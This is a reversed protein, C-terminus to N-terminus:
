CFVEGISKLEWRCNDYLLISFEEATFQRGYEDEVIKEGPRHRSKHKICELVLAPDTAFIFATEADGCGYRKGVHTGAYPVETEHCKVKTGTPLLIFQPRPEEYIWYYNTSMDM